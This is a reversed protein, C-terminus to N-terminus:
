SARKAGSLGDILDEADPGSMSTRELLTNAVEDIIQWHQEVLTGAQATLDELLRDQAGYDTGCMRGLRGVIETEDSSRPENPDLVYTGGRSREEATPGALHIVVDDCAAKWEEASVVDQRWIKSQKLSEPLVNSGSHGLKGEIESNISIGLLQYGLIRATVAHGSEHYATQRM